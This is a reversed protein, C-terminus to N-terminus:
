YSFPDTPEQLDAAVLHVYKMTTKIDEHGLIKQLKEVPRGNRLYETAFTHRICHFHYRERIADEPWLRRVQKKFAHAVAQEAYVQYFLYGEKRGDQGNSLVRLDEEPARQLIELFLAKLSPFLPVYRFKDYKGRVGVLNNEWVIDSERIGTIESSRFGGFASARIYDGIWNTRTEEILTRMDPRRIILITDKPKTPRDVAKVPNVRIYKEKVAWEFAIQLHTLYKHITHPALGRERWQDRLRTIHEATINSVHLTGGSVNMLHHLPTLDSEVTLAKVTHFRHEKYLKCFDTLLISRIAILGLEREEIAQSQWKHYLKQALQKSTTGTSRTVWRGTADKYRVYLYKRGPRNVVGM